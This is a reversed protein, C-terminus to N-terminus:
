RRLLTGSFILIVGGKLKFNRCCTLDFDRGLGVSLFLPPSSHKQCKGRANFHCQARSGKSIQDRM